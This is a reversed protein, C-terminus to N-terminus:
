EPLTPQKGNIKKNFRGYTELQRNKLHLFLYYAVTLWYSSVIKNRKGKQSIQYFHALPFKLKRREHIFV